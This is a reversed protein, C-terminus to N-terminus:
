SDNIKIGMCFFVLILKSRCLVQIWNVESKTNINFVVNYGKKFQPSLILWNDAKRSRLHEKKESGIMM